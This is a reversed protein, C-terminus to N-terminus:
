DEAEGGDDPADGPGPDRDRSLEDVENMISALPTQGDSPQSRRSPL